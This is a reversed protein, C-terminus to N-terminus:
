LFNFLGTVVREESLAEEHKENEEKWIEKEKRMADIDEQVYDMIKGLPNASRCLVQIAERLTDVEQQTQEREKRSTTDQAHQTVREDDQNIANKMADIKALLHGKEEGNDAENPNGAFSSPGSEPESIATAQQVQFEDDPDEDSKATASNDEIVNSTSTISTDINTDNKEKGPNSRIRPPGARATASSPRERRTRTVKRLGYVLDADEDPNQNQPGSGKESPPPALSDETSVASDM